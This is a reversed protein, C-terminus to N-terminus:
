ADRTLNPQADGDSTKPQPTTTDYAAPRWPAVASCNYVDAVPPRKRVDAPPRRRTGRRSMSRFMGERGVTIRALSM